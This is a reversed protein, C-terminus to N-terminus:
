TEPKIYKQIIVTKFPLGGLFFMASWHHCWQAIHDDLLVYNLLQLTYLYSLKLKKRGSVCVAM